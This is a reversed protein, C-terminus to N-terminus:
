SVPTVPSANTKKAMARRINKIVMIIMLLIGVYGNIGYIINILEKFPLALGIFCGIAAVIITAFYFPKTGEKTWRAAVQWLLPVTTTFIGALIIVSFVSAFIPSIKTAITLTPINVSAVEPLYALFGFMLVICGLVFGLSGITTGVVGEKQNDSQAGMSALFGTLWLMNFGVYSGASILWHSGVKTLEIESNAVMNAGEVIGAPNSFIAYLGVSVSILVIIPGIKGIVDVIKGLGMMVVCSAVVAMLIGGVYVPLNYHENLTAGAGGIMVVYSMFLFAISFYDYFAGIHKGCYYTYIENGKTFKERYGTAIFDGCVFTFLLLSVLAVLIGQYGYSTFYQMIEQGTAFGSGILFAVVAGSITLARSMKVKQGNM